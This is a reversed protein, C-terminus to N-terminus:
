RFVNYNYTYLYNYFFDIKGVFVFFLTYLQGKGRNIFEGGCECKITNEIKEYDAM